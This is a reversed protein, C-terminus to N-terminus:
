VKFTDIITLLEKNYINYNEEAPLLKRLHFIVPYIRGQENQQNMYARITYNSADIKLIIEKKLNFIIM